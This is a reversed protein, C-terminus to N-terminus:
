ESKLMSIDTVGCCNGLNLVHSAVLSSEVGSMVDPSPTQTMNLMTIDTAGCCNDLNLVHEKEYSLVTIDGSNYLYIDSLRYDKYSQINLKILNFLWIGTNASLNNGSFVIMDQNHLQLISDAVSTDKSKCYLGKQSQYIYELRIDKANITKMLEDTNNLLHHTNIGIVLYKCVVEPSSVPKPLIYNNILMLM